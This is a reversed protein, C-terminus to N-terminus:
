VQFAEVCLIKPLTCPLETWNEGRDNSAFVHGSTTGVYVGCPDLLDVSMAGRLVNTFRPETPLGRDLGEWREGGDRTCYVRVRGDPAYRFDDGALPYSYVYGKAPDMEVAFGFACPEGFSLEGLPLGNEIREWNDGGDLSRFMGNHDQRFIRNANGRDHALGHVCWADNPGAPVGADKRAWTDGGDDSRFVGAASIGVWLRDPNDADSLITHLCLGGFGPSWNPQSEHNNLGSVPQWSKGRDDSRFLGAESVGAYLVDGACHLKWIQDVHRHAYLGLPNSATISEEVEVNNFSITRNHETNGREGPEYRPASALHEWQELDDSAMLACGFVEGAVAVYTRGGPDRAAATVRWGRFSLEGVEWHRRADDARLLMGGKDTGVIVVVGM